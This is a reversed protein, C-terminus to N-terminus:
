VVDTTVTVYTITCRKHRRIRRSFYQFQSGTDVGRDKKIIIVKDIPPRSKKVDTMQGSGVKARFTWPGDQLWLTAPSRSKNMDINRPDFILQRRTTAPFEEVWFKMTTEIETLHEASKGDAALIREFQTKTITRRIDDADDSVVSAQYSALSWASLGLIAELFDQETHWGPMQNDAALFRKLSLHVLSSGAQGVSKSYWSLNASWTFVNAEKWTKKINARSFIIDAAVEIASRLQRASSRVKVLDDGWANSLRPSSLEAQSTLEALRARKYFLQVGIRPLNSNPPCEHKKLWSIHQEKIHEQLESASTPPSVSYTIACAPGVGNVCSEFEHLTRVGDISQVGSNTGAIMPPRERHLSASPRIEADERNTQMHLALWDLEHGQVEDHLHYLLNQEKELRQARLMSRIFSMALIAGLQFVSIASHVARLSVFQLIFGVMTVAVSGATMKPRDSQQSDKWSTIYERKLTLEDQFSCSDFTQDGIVQNGPQVVHLSSPSPRSLPKTKRFVREKTSADILHACLWMGACQMITGFVMMPFAWSPAPADNKKWRWKYTALAAFLLVAFQLVLGTCAALWSVYRPYKKIGYNLSLNPNPAFGSRPGRGVEGDARTPVGDETWGADRAASSDIYERFTYIGCKTKAESCGSSPQEYQYYNVDDPVHILELIKPRGFVRVVAGNRYLECADRSTSSCLEAEAVGSGEQARGVFARLSPGGCVRIASVVATLIGLPVMAFIFTDLATTSESLFQKTVQEGFLALIPALDSALNNSFDDWWGARAPAAILCCLLLHRPPM